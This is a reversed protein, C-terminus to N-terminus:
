LVTCGGQERFFQVEGNAYHFGTVSACEISMGGCNLAVSTPEFRYHWEHIGEEGKILARYQNVETRTQVCPGLPSGPEATYTYRIESHIFTSM